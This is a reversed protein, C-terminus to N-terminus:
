KDKYYTIREDKYKFRLWIWRFFAIVLLPVFVYVFSLVFITAGFAIVTAFLAVTLAIGLIYIFINFFNNNPM